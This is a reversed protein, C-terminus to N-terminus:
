CSNHKPVTRTIERLHEYHDIAETTSEAPAYHVIITCTPNGNFHAVLIQSKYPKIEALAASWTSNILLAIGEIPAKKTNTTASATIFTVNQKEHYEHIIKHDLIDM